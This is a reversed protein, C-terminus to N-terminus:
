KYVEQQVAVTCGGDKGHTETKSQGRERERQANADREVKAEEKEM